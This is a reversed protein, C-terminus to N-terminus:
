HSNEIFDITFGYSMSMLLIGILFFGLICYKRNM